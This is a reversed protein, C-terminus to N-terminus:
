TDFITGLAKAQHLIKSKSVRQEVSRAHALASGECGTETKGGNRLIERLQSSILLFCFLRSAVPKQNGAMGLM